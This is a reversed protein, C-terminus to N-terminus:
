IECGGALCQRNLDEKQTTLVQQFELWYEKKKLHKKRCCAPSVAFRTARFATAPAAVVRSLRRYTECCARLLAPVDTLMRATSIKVANLNKGTLIEVAQQLSSSEKDKSKARKHRAAAEVMLSETQDGAGLPSVAVLHPRADAEGGTALLETPSIRGSTAAMSFALQRVKLDNLTIQERGRSLDRTGLGFIKQLDDTDPAEDASEDSSEETSESKKNRKKGSRKRSDKPRSENENDGAKLWMVTFIQLAEAQGETEPAEEQLKNSSLSRTPAKNSPGM